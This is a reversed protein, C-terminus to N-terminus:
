SVAAEEIRELIADVTQSVDLASTDLWLGIRPTNERLEHDLADPTWTSYGVKGRGEERETVAEISPSLVVVYVKRKRKSIRKHKWTRRQQMMEVVDTLVAGLIVDQYVVTFGAECYLDAAAAAVQYRLKLQAFAAETYDANMEQRGNVIMSRFLDGRLHVSKPLREALAQAVTSKGSAMIGTILVISSARM